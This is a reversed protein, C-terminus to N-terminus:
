FITCTSKPIANPGNIKPNERQYLSWYKKGVKKDMEVQIRNSSIKNQKVSPESPDKILLGTPSEEIINELIHATTRGTALVGYRTNRSIWNGKVSGLSNLLVIGDKNQEIQNDEIQLEKEGEVM